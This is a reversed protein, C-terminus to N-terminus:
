VVAELARTLAQLETEGDKFPIEKFRGPTKDVRFCCAQMWNEMDDDKIFCRYGIEAATIGLGILNFRALRILWLTRLAKAQASKTGAYILAEQLFGAETAKAL